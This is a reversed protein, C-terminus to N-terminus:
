GGDDGVGTKPAGGGANDVTEVADGNIKPAESDVALGAVEVIGVGKGDFGNAFAGDSM